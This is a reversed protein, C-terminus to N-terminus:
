DEGELERNPDVAARAVGFSFGRNVLRRLAREREARDQPLPGRLLARARAIEAEDSGQDLVGDLADRAIEDDVGKTQLERLIRTAGYGARIRTRVYAEAYRVDDLLGVRVYADVIESVVVAPYGDDSLKKTLERTSRERYGLLALARERAQAPEADALMAPLDAIEMEPELLLVKVTSASTTRENGDSLVIRRARSGPGANIISVIRDL